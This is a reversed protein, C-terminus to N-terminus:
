NGNRVGKSFIFDYLIKFSDDIMSIEAFYVLEGHNNYFELKQPSNSFIFSSYIIISEDKFRILNPTLQIPLDKM